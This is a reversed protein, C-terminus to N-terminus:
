HMTYLGLKLFGQFIVPLLVTIIWVYQLSLSSSILDKIM